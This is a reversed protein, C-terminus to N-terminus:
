LLTSDCREQDFSSHFSSTKDHVVHNFILIKPRHPQQTHYSPTTYKTPLTSLTHNMRPVRNSRICEGDNTDRCRTRSRRPARSFLIYLVSTQYTLPAQTTNQKIKKLTYSIFTATLIENQKKREIAKDRERERESKTERAHARTHACTQM